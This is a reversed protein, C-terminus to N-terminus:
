KFWGSMTAWLNQFFQTIGYQRSMDSIVTVFDFKDVAIACWVLVIAITLVIFALLFLFFNKVSIPSRLKKLQSSPDNSDRIAQELQASASQDPTLPASSGPATAQAADKGKKGKAKKEKPAKEKKEKPAKVKENEKKAM